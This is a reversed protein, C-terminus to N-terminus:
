ANGVGKRIVWGKKILNFIADPEPKGHGRGLLEGDAYMEFSNSEIIIEKSETNSM